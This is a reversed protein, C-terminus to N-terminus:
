KEYEDVSDSIFRITELADHKRISLHATRMHMGNEDFKNHNM